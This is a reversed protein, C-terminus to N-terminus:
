KNRNRACALRTTSKARFSCYLHCSAPRMTAEEDKRVDAPCKREAM